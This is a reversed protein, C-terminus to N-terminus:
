VKCTAFSHIWFTKMLLSNLVNLYYGPKAGSVMELARGVKRQQHNSPLFQLCPVNFFQNAFQGRGHIKVNPQVNQLPKLCGFPFYVQLCVFCTVILVILDVRWERLLCYFFNGKSLSM